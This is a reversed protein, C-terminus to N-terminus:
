SYSQKLLLRVPRHGHQRIILTLLALAIIPPHTRTYFLPPHKPVSASVHKDALRTSVLTAASELYRGGASVV